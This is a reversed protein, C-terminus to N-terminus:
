YKRKGWDYIVSSQACRAPVEPRLLAMMSAQEREVHRGMM